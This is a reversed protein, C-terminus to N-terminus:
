LLYKSVGNKLRMLSRQGLCKWIPIQWGVFAVGRSLRPWPKGNPGRSKQPRPQRSNLSILGNLSNLSVHRSMSNRCSRSPIWTCSRSKTRTKSTRKALTSARWRCVRARASKMQFRFCLHSYILYPILIILGM